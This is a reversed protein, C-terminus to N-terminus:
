FGSLVADVKFFGVHSKVEKKEMLAALLLKPRGFHFGPM